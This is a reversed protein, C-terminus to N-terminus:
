PFCGPIFILIKLIFKFLIGFLIIILSLKVIVEIAKSDYFDNKCM